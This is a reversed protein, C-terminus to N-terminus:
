TNDNSEESEETESEVGTEADVKYNTSAFVQCKFGNPTNSALTDYGDEGNSFQGSKGGVTFGTRARVILDKEVPVNFGVYTITKAPLVSQASIVEWQDNIKAELVCYSSPVAKNNLATSSDVWGYVVLNGTAPCVWENSIKNGVDITMQVQDTDVNVDNTMSKNNVYTVLGQPDKMTTHITMYPAFRCELKMLRFKHDDLRGELHQDKLVMYRKLVDFDYFVHKVFGDTDTQAVETPAYQVTDNKGKAADKSELYKILNYFSTGDPAKGQEQADLERSDFHTEGRSHNHTDWYATKLTNQVAEYVKQEFDGVTIKMSEYKADTGEGNLCQVIHLYSEGFLESTTQLNTISTKNIVENAALERYSTNLIKM